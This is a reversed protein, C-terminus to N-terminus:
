ALKNNKNIEIINNRITYAIWSRYSTFIKFIKLIIYNSPLICLRFIRLNNVHNVYSDKM